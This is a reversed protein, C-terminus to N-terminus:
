FFSLEKLSKEYVSLARKAQDLSLIYDPNHVINNRIEHVMKVDEINSLQDKTIQEIKDGFTEGPFGSRRFTEDLLNEAETVALKWESEAALDLRKKIALWQKDTKKEVVSTGKSLEKLDTFYRFDLYKSKKMYYIMSAILYVLILYATLQTFLLSLRFFDSEFFSVIANTIPHM